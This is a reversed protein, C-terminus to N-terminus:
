NHAKLRMDSEGSDGQCGPIFFLLYIGSIILSVKILKSDRKGVGPYGACLMNNTIMKTTYNTKSTCEDNSLVPVEVEQLICSPKGDEKLTGWGTVLGINGVYMEDALYVCFIECM